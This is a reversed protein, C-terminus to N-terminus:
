ERIYGIFFGDVPPKVKQGSHHENINPAATKASVSIMTKKEQQSTEQPTVGWGGGEM